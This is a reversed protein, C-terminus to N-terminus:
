QWSSDKNRDHHEQHRPPEIAADCARGAWSFGPHTSSQSVTLNINLSINQGVQLDIDKIDNQAFGPATISLSYGPGPTLAPASFVGASNTTLARIEGQTSNSVVVKANPVVSGSPDHVTGAIAAVGGSQAFAPVSLFVLLPAVIKWNMNQQLFGKTDRMM